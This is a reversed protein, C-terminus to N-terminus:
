DLNIVNYRDESLKEMDPYENMMVVVHLPNLYKMGSEYKGSFIRGNKVNELFDYQIFDGQKSRPCDLFLVKIAPDLALAMDAYKGPTLIQTEERHTKAYYDCFWSKGTGGTSDVM